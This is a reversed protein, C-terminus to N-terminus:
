YGGYVGYRQHGYGNYANGYHGGNYANGYYGNHAGYGTSYYENGPYYNAGGYYSNYANGYGLRGGHHALAAVSALVLAVSIIVILNKIMTTSM